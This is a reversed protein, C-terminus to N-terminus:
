GLYVGFDQYGDAASCQASACEVVYVYGIGIVEVEVSYAMCVLLLYVFISHYCGSLEYVGECLICAHCGVFCGVYEFVEDIDYYVCYLGFVGDGYLSESYELFLFFGLFSEEVGCCALASYNWCACCQSELLAGFELCIEIGVGCVSCCRFFVVRFFSSILLASVMRVVQLHM